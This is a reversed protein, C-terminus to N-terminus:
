TQDGTKKANRIKSLAKWGTRLIKLLLGRIPFLAMWLRFVCKWMRSHCDIEKQNRILKVVRATVAELPFWGDRLCVGDGTTQFRQGDLRTIRHLLYTGRLTQFLVIDGKRLSDPAAKEVIVRDRGHCLFPWMSMGTVTFEAQKGNSLIEEIAAFLEESSIWQDTEKMM